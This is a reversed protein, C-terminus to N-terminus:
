EIKFKVAYENNEVPIIVLVNRKELIKFIKRLDDDPLNAFEEGSGRIEPIIVIDAKGNEKAWELILDAWEELSKWYIRLMEKKKDLWEALKKEVLYATLFEIAKSRDQFKNFPVETLLKKPYLIHLIAVKAYDLLVQGWEEQWSAFDKKAKKPDPASFMFGFQPQELWPHLEVLKEAASKVVETVEESSVEKELKQLEKDIESQSMGMSKDTVSKIKGDLQKEFDAIEQELDDIQQHTESIQKEKQETESDPANQGMKSLQAELEKLRKLKEAKQKQKELEKQDKPRMKEALIIM